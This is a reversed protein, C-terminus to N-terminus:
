RHTMKLMTISELGTALQVCFKVLDKENLEGSSLYTKLDQSNELVMHHHDTELSLALLKVVHQCNVKRFLDVQRRFEDFTAEDATKTLSKILVTCKKQAQIDDEDNTKNKFSPLDFDM